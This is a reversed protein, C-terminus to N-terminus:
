KLREHIDHHGPAEIDRIMQDFAMPVRITPSSQEPEAGSKADDMSMAGPAQQLQWKASGGSAIAMAFDDFDELYKKPCYERLDSLLPGIHTDCSILVANDTGPKAGPTSHISKVWHYQDSEIITM